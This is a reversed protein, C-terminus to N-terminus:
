AAKRNVAQMAIKTLTEDARKEEQLSAQLLNSVDDRWLQRAWAILTCYRAIEYHEVAQVAAIIGADLVAPDKAEGMVEDAEEVIGELARCKEAPVGMGLIEFVKKLRELQYETEKLHSELVERLDATTAQKAMKPLAKLIQNEAGYVDKLHWLFLEALTKAGM